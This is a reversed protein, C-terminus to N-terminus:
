GDVAVVEIAVVSVLDVVGVPTIPADPTAFRLTRPPSLGVTFSRPTGRVQSLLIPPDRPVLAASNSGKIVVHAALHLSALEPGYREQLLSHDNFVRQLKPDPFDILVNPCRGNTEDPTVSELPM